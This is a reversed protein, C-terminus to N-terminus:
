ENFHSASGLPSAQPGLARDARDRWKSSDPSASSPLLGGLIKGALRLSKIADSRLSQGLNTHANPKWYDGIRRLAGTKLLTLLDDDLPWYFEWDREYRESYSLAEGRFLRILDAGFNVGASLGLELSGWFKGNIEMLVFDARPESYKFEVMAVGHWKLAALLRLGLEKLRPSYYARAATSRGGSPPYERIRQHMFVRLPEGHNMLGFFGFGTGQIFEQVLVEARGRLLVLLQDIAGSLEAHNTCYSVKKCGSGERSAKVVCPFSVPLSASEEARRVLWTQPAPVELQNALEVTRRKDYCVELEERTSLVALAPCEAAVTLVSTAGVPIVMDFTGDRLARELPMGTLIADYCRHSGAFVGHVEDHGVVRLNPIAVKAHRTLAVAHKYSADTVLAQFM